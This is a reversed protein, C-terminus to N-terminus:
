RLRLARSINGGWIAAKVEDAVPLHEMKILAPGEMRMPMGSGYVVRDPGLTRILTPIEDYLFLRSASIEVTYNPPRTEADTVLTTLHLSTTHALLFRTKPHNACISAIDDAGPDAYCLVERRQRGNEVERTITLLLDNEACALCLESCASGSLLYDDYQPYIRVSRIGMTEICWRLDSEWAIYNPNIVAAPIFRDAAGPHSDLQEALEENGAQKNRYMIASLSGVVAKDIGHEDMIGLLGGVTNNPVRHAFWNGLYGHADIKVYGTGKM